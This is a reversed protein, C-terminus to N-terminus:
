RRTIRFILKDKRGFYEVVLRVKMFEIVRFVTIYYKGIIFERNYIYLFVFRVDFIKYKRALVVDFKNIFVIICFLSDIRRVIFVIFVYYM